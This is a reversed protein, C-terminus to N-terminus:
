ERMWRWMEAPTPRKGYLLLGVRYLKASIRLSVATSLVLLAVAALIEWWATGAPDVGVRLMMTVPTTLPIFTFIRALTGQPESVIALWFFIPCISLITIISTYQTAERQNSGLSGIGLLLSGFLVYGLLYFLGNVLFISPNVVFSVALGLITTVGLVSWISIQLLAVGGLGILKGTMLQVPTLSSVVMELVRNEKEDAMGQILYGGSVSISLFLLFFFVLGTSTRRLWEDPSEATSVGGATSLYIRDERLPRRARVVRKEDVDSLINLAIWERFEYKLVGDQVNFFTPKITTMVQVTGHEEFKEPIVIVVQVGDGAMRQKAEDLTAYRRYDQGKPPPLTIAKALDVFGLSATARSKVDKEILRSNIVWALLGLAGFFLPTGFTVVLFGWRKVTTLFEHRAVIWSKKM